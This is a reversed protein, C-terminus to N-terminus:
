RTGPREIEGVDIRDARANDPQPLRHPSSRDADSSLVSILEAYEGGTRTRFRARQFSLGSEALAGEFGLTAKPFHRKGEANTLYLDGARLQEPWPKGAVTNKVDPGWFLEVAKIEGRSIVFLNNHLGWDLIKVERGSQYTELYDNVLYIADSWSSTGGTRQLGRIAAVNWSMAAGFYVLAFAGAVVKAARGLTGLWVLALVVVMAIVPVLTTLHHHAIPLRSFVMIAAFVLCFIVSFRHWLADSSNDKRLLASALGFLVTAALATSLWMPFSAPGDWVARYESDCLLTDVLMPLRALFLEGLGLDLRAHSVFALTGGRSLLEYVLVPLCGILGGSLLAGAHRRPIWTRRGLVLAAAVAASLLLWAFNLRNWVAIGALFGILSARSASPSKLYSNISLALAGLSTMWVAVNGKDLVTHFLFSPHVAIVLATVAGVAPHIQERLLRAMAWIGFATLLAAVVRSIFPDTGWLAFVPLLLYYRGAGVYPMIMVPWWRGDVEIWGGPDYHAFRPKGEWHLMHVAGHQHIAEDYHLGVDQHAIGTALLLHLLIAAATILSWRHSNFHDATPVPNNPLPRGRHVRPM